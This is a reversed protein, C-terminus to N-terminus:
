QMRMAFISDDSSQSVERKFVQRNILDSILEALCSTDWVPSSEINADQDGDDSLTM